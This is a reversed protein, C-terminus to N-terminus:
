RACDLGLSAGPGLTYPGECITGLGAAAGQRIHTDSHNAWAPRATRAESVLPAFPVAEPLSNAGFSLDSRIIYTQRDKPPARAPDAIESRDEKAMETKSIPRRPQARPGTSFVKTLPM